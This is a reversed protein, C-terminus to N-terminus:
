DSLYILSYFYRLHLDNRKKRGGARVQRTAGRRLARSRLRHCLEQDAARDGVEDRKADARKRQSEHAIPLILELEM